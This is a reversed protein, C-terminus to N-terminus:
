RGFSSAIELLRERELGAERRRPRRQPTCHSGKAVGRPRFPSIALGHMEVGTGGLGEVVERAEAVIRTPEVLRDGAIALRQGEIRPKGDGVVTKGVRQARFTVRGTGELM